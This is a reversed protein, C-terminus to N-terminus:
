RRKKRDKLIKLAADHAKLISDQLTYTWYGSVLVRLKELETETRQLHKEDTPFFLYIGRENQKLEM